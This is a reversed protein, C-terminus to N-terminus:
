GEQLTFLNAIFDFIVIKSIALDIFFIYILPVLWKMEPLLYVKKM